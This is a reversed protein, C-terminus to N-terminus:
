SGTTSIVAPSGHAFQQEHFDLPFEVGEFKLAHAHHHPLVIEAFTEISLFNIVFQTNTATLARLIGNNEGCLMTLHQFKGWGNGAYIRYDAEEITINDFPQDTATGPQYGLRLRYLNREPGDTTSVHGCFISFQDNNTTSRPAPSM